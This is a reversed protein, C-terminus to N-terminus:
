AAILCPLTPVVDALVTATHAIRLEMRLAQAGRGTNDFRPAFESDACPQLACSHVPADFASVCDDGKAAGYQAATKFVEPLAPCFLSCTSCGRQSVSSFPHQTRGTRHRGWGVVKKDHVWAKQVYM